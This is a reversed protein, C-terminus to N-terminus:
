SLFCRYSDCFGRFGTNQTFLVRYSDCFGREVTNQTFLVVFRCSQVGCLNSGITCVYCYGDNAIGCVALKPRRIRNSASIGLSILTPNSKLTHLGLNAMKTTCCGRM